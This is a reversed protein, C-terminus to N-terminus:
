ANDKIISEISNFYALMTGMVQPSLELRVERRDPSSNHRLVMGKKVLVSLLRRVTAEPAIELLLLQKLTLPIGMEQHYGIEVLIEYERCSRIGHLSAYAQRLARLKKFAKKLM